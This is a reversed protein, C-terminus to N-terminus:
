RPNNHKTQTTPIRKASLHNWTFGAIVLALVVAQVALVQVSPYIGLAPVAPIAVADVPLKGAAQLAFIGKGGFVVALAALLASSVGFFLGFPLRVAYRFILWALLVLGGSGLALGILVPIRGTEGAQIWLTQYFLVTEFVERYVAFFSVLALGWLTGGSLAGRMQAGIFQQWRQAYMKNHLWYGMYLLVVASFLATVGETLERSAGSVRVFYSAAVWTAAGLLLAVVWGAHVYRLGRRQGTKTLFAIMGALILIAELGERFLIIFASTMTAVASAASENLVDRAEQIMEIIADAKTAVDRATAGSKILNRYALMEQEVHSKLQPARVSLSAEVLEFGELYANVALALAGSHDGSGYARASERMGRIATELPPEKHELLRGPNARLFALTSVADAGHAKRAETFSLTSLTQLNGVWAVAKGSEWLKAGAAREADSSAFRTLYYALAWRDDEGLRTFGTMATGAVGLTITSYLSYPSRQDQRVRNHFDAPQPDLKAALPGDGQGNNGHCAACHQAFLAAGRTLDPVRAPAVSINYATIIEWRLKSAAAAVLPAEAKARILELLARSQVTLAPKPREDPLASLLTVVQGSFELQEEFETPNAVKGDRVAGPYDSGVYDLLHIAIQLNQAQSGGTANDSVAATAAFVPVALIMAAARLVLVSLRRLQTALGSGRIAGESNRRHIDTCAHKALPNM